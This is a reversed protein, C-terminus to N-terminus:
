KSSAICEFHIIDNNNINTLPQHFSRFVDPVKYYDYYDYYHNGIIKENMENKDVTISHKHILDFVKLTCKVTTLNWIIAENLLWFKKRSKLNFCHFLFFKKKSM